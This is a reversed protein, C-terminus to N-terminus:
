KKASRPAEQTETLAEPSEANKAQPMALSMKNVVEAALVGGDSMLREIIANVTIDEPMPANMENYAARVGFYCVRAVFSLKFFGTKQYRAFMDVFDAVFVRNPDSDEYDAILQASFSVPTAVGEWINM